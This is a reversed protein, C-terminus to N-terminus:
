GSVSMAAQPAESTDSFTPTADSACDEESVSLIESALLDLEPQDTSLSAAGSFGSKFSDSSEVTHDSASWFDSGSSESSKSTRLM